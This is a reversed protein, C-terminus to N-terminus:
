KRRTADLFIVDEDSLVRKGDILKGLKYRGVLTKVVAYSRKRSKAYQHMNM